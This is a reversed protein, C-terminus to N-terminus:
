REWSYTLLTCRSGSQRGTTPVGRSSVVVDPLARRYVLLVLRLLGREPPGRSLRNFEPQRAGSRDYCRLTVSRLSNRYRNQIPSLARAYSNRDATVFACLLEELSVDM